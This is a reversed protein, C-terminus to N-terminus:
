QVEPRIVLRFGVHGYASAPDLSHRKAVRSADLDSDWGGGRVIRKQGFDPGSPDRFAGEGEPYNGYWDRCWEWMNGHMDWLGWRNPLLSGARLVEKRYNGAECGPRFSNAAFNAQTDLLCDGYAYTTGTGARAAYEWEAETPLDYFVGEKQRLWQIFAQVDNYSVASVPLRDKLPYGPNRWTYAPDQVWRFGGELGYAGRGVEAESKYGTADVFAQWHEALVEHTQMFFPKSIFVRHQTEDSARRVENDPSGMLFEGTNMRAFGMNLTNKYSPLLSLVAELETKKGAEVRFEIRQDVHFPATLLLIYDGPALYMGPVYIRDRGELVMRAKEPVVHVFLQGERPKEPVPNLSIQREEGPSLRIEERLDDYGPASIDLRYIGAELAAIRLPLLGHDQGNIRLRAGEARSRIELSARLIEQPPAAAAPPAVTVMPPAIPKKWEFVLDGGNKKGTRLVRYQIKGGAARVLPALGEFLKQGEVGGELEPLLGLLGSVLLGNESGEPDKGGEKVLLTHAYGEKGGPFVRGGVEAVVPGLANDPFPADSILLVRRSETNRLIQQIANVEIYSQTDGRRADAGLWWGYGYLTEVEAAGSFYIVLGDDPRASRALTELSRIVAAKSASGGLLRTVRFDLHKELYDGLSAADKSSRAPFKIEKDQYGDIGIVLARNEGAFVTAGWMMPLLLFIFLVGPRLFFKGRHAHVIFNM